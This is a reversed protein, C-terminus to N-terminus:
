ETQLELILANYNISALSDLQQESLQDGGIYDDPDTSGYVSIEATDVGIIYTYRGPELEKEGVFDIPQIKYLRNNIELEIYAYRYASEFDEYDSYRGASINDFNNGEFGTNVYVNQFDFDSSNKIRILVDNKNNCM